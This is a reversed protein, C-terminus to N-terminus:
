TFSIRRHAKLDGNPAVNFVFTLHVVRHPIFWCDIGISYKCQMLIHYADQKAIPLILIINLLCLVFEYESSPNAFM